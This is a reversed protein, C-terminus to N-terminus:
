GGDADARRELREVAVVAVRPGDKASGVGVVRASLREGGLLLCAVGELGGSGAGVGGVAVGDAVGDEGVVRCDGLGEGVETADAGIVALPREAGREGFSELDESGPGRGSTSAAEATTWM